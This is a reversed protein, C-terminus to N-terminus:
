KSFLIEHCLGFGVVCKTERPLYIQQHFWCWYGRKGQSIVRWKISVILFYVFVSTIASNSEVAM